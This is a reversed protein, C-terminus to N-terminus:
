IREENNRLKRLPSVIWVVFPIAAIDLSKMDLRLSDVRAIAPGKRSWLRRRLGSASQDPDLRGRIGSVGILACDFLAGRSQRPGSV